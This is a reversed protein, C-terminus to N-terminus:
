QPPPPPPPGPPGPPRSPRLARLKEQQKPDLANKIRVLLAFNVRKVQQELATVAEFKALAAAEDVHDASLLKGLAETEGDLKWQLDVLQRQTDIMAQKIADTQAPQLAIEQQHEMVLNPTFLQGLFVPQGSPPGTLSMEPGGMGPPPGMARGAAATAGILAAVLAAGISVRM